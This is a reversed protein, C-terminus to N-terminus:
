PYISINKNEHDFEHIGWNGGVGGGRVWVEVNLDLPLQTANQDRSLSKAADNIFSTVRCGSSSLIQRSLMFVANNSNGQKIYIERRDQMCKEVNLDVFVKGSMSSNKSTNLVEVVLQGKGGSINEIEFNWGDWTPTGAFTKSIACVICIFSIFITKMIGEKEFIM